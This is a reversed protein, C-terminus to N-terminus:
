VQWWIAVPSFELVFGHWGAMSEARVSLVVSNISGSPSQTPKTVNIGAAQQHQSMSQTVHTGLSHM